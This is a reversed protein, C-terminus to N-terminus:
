KKEELFKSKGMKEMAWVYVLIVIFWACIMVVYVAFSGYFASIVTAISALIALILVIYGPKM